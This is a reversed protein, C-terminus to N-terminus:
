KQKNAREDVLTIRVGSNLFALERLRNAIIDYSFETEEFFKTM